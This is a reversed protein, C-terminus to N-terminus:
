VYSEGIELGVLLGGPTGATAVEAGHVAHHLRQGVGAVVGVVREDDGTDATGPLDPGVHVAVRQVPDV